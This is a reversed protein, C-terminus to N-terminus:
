ESPKEGEIFKAYELIKKMTKMRRLFGFVGEAGPAQQLYAFDKRAKETDEEGITIGECNSINQLLVDLRTALLINNKVQFIFEDYKDKEEKELKEFDQRYMKKYGHVKKELEMDM